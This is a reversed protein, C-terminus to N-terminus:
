CIRGVRMRRRCQSSISTSASAQQAIEYKVSPALSRISTTTWVPIIGRRTFSSPKLSSDTTTLMVRKQKNTQKNGGGVYNIRTVKHPRTSESMSRVGMNSHMYITLLSIRFYFDSYDQLCSLVSQSREIQKWVGDSRAMPLMTVPVSSCVWATSSEPARLM